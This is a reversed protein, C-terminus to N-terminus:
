TLWKKEVKERYSKSGRRYREYEEDYEREKTSLITLIENAEDKIKLNLKIDSKNVFKRIFKSNKYCRTGQELLKKRMSYLVRYETEPFLTLLALQKKIDEMWLLYNQRARFFKKTM